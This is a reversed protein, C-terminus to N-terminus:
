QLFIGGVANVSIQINGVEPHSLTLTRPANPMGNESFIITEAGSLAFGSKLVYENDMGAIREEYSPGAFLTYRNPDFRVGWKLGNQQTMSRHQAMRLTQGLDQRLVEITEVQQFNGLFPLTIGATIVFITIVIILEIMTFGRRTNEYMSTLITRKQLFHKKQHSASNKYNLTTVFHM